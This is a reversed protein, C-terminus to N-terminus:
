VARRGYRALLTCVCCRQVARKAAARYGNCPTCHVCCQVQAGQVVQVSCVLVASAGVQSAGRLLGLEKYPDLHAIKPASGLTSYHAAQRHWLMARSSRSAPVACVAGTHMHRLRFVPLVHVHTRATHADTVTTAVAAHGIRQCLAAQMGTSTCRSVVHAFSAGALAMAAQSQPAYGCLPGTLAGSAQTVQNM